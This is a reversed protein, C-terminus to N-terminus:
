HCKEVEMREIPSSPNRELYNEVERKLGSPIITMSRDGEVSLPVNYDKAVQKAEDYTKQVKRHVSQRNGQGLWEFIRAGTLSADVDSNEMGFNLLRNGLQMYRGIEHYSTPSVANGTLIDDVGYKLQSSGTYRLGQRLRNRNWKGVKSELADVANTLLGSLRSYGEEAINKLKM